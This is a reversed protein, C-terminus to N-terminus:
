DQSALAFHLYISDKIEEIDFEAKYYYFGDLINKAETIPPVTHKPMLVLNLELTLTNGVLRGEISPAHGRTQFGCSQLALGPNDNSYALPPDVYFSNPYFYIGTNWLSNTIVQSGMQYSQLEDGADIRIVSPFMGSPVEGAQHLAGSWSLMRIRVHKGAFAHYIKIFPLAPGATQDVPGWIATYLVM